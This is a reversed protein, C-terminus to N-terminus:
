WINNTNSQVRSDTDAERWPRRSKQSLPYHSNRNGGTLGELTHEEISPGHHEGQRRLGELREKSNDMGELASRRGLDSCCWHFAGIWSTASEAHAVCQPHRIVHVWSAVPTNSLQPSFQINWLRQKSVLSHHLCHLFQFRSITQKSTPNM